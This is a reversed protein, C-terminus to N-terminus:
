SSRGPAGAERGASHLSPSPPSSGTSSVGRAAYSDRVEVSRRPQRAVARAQQGIAKALTDRLEATSAVDRGNVKQIVDGPQLGTEAAAGDPDVDTIVVGETGRPLEFRDALEPTLPEVTM